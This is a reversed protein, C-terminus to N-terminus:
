GSGSLMGGIAGVFIFGMGVTGILLFGAPVYNMVFGLANLYSAWFVVSFVYVGLIAPSHTFWAILLGGIGAGTIIMLWLNTMSTDDQTLSAFTSNTDGEAVDFGKKAEVPFIELANVFNISLTVLVLGVTIYICVQYFTNLYKM